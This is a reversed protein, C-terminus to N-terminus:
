FRYTAKLRFAWSDWRVENLRITANTGDVFNVRDTGPSITYNTYDIAAGLTWRPGSIYDVGLSAVIGHGSAWHNKTVPQALDTRSRWYCSGDYDPLHYELRTTLHLRKNLKQEHVIGAWPGRWLAKYSASVDPYPGLQPNPSTDITQVYDDMDLTQRNIAYGAMLSTKAKKSDQLKWGLSLSADFLTGGSGNSNSRSFELTRNDGDYDSDQNRGAYTYGWSTTAELFYRRGLDHRLVGKIGQTRLNKWKLESLINPFNDLGAKNWVLNDQRYFPIVDLQTAGEVTQINSSWLLFLLFIVAMPFSRVSKLM